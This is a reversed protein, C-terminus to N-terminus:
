SYGAFGQARVWARRGGVVQTYEFRWTAWVTKLIKVEGVQAM